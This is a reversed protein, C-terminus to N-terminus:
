FYILHGHYLTIQNQITIKSLCRVYNQLKNACNKNIYMKKNLFLKKITM